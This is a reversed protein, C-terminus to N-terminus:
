KVNSDILKKIDHFLLFNKNLFDVDKDWWKYDKLFLIENQEFRLKIFKAPVGGVISYEAVDKTVIAGSAIIAGNGIKVGGKIIVNAGIWVDNAITTEYYEKFYKKKEFTYGLHSTNTYFVPHISVFDEVPHEGLGIKVNPAICCYKGIKCNNVYGNKAIYSYNGISTNLVQSSEIYVFKGFKTNFVKVRGKLKLTRNNVLLMVKNIKSLFTNIIPSLLEKILYM